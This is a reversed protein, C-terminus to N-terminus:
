WCDSESLVRTYPTVQGWQMYGTWCSCKSTGVDHILEPESYYDIWWRKTGNCEPTFIDDTGPGSAVIGPACGVGSNQALAVPAGAGFVWLLAMSLLTCSFRRVVVM